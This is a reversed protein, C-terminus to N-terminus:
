RGREGLAFWIPIKRIELDKCTHVLFLQNRNNDCRQGYNAAHHNIKHHSVLFRLGNRKRFRLRDNFFRSRSRLFEVALIEIKEQLVNNRGDDIGGTKRGLAINGALAIGITKVVGYDALTQDFFVFRCNRSLRVFCGDIMQFSM